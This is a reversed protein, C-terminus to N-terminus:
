NIVQGFFIAAKLYVTSKEPNKSDPDLTSCAVRRTLEAVRHLHDDEDGSETESSGRHPSSLDSPPAYAFSGFHFAADDGNNLCLPDDNSQFPTTIEDEVDDLFQPPLWFEGDDLNEAMVFLLSPCFPFLPFFLLPNNNPLLSFLLSHPPSTKSPQSSKLILKHHPSDFASDWAYLCFASVHLSFTLTPSLSLSPTNTSLSLCLSSPHVATSYNDM